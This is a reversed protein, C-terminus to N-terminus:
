HATAGAPKARPKVKGAQTASLTGKAKKKAKDADAKAVLKPSEKIGLAEIDIKIPTAAREELNVKAQDILAKGQDSQLYDNAAATIDKPEVANIRKGSAKIADKILNKALRRAETMVAAPEGTKAKKALFRIKGAMIAEVNKEAQAMALSKLEEEDKTSAKTIKSMGRNALEKLGLLLAEGYVEEPLDDTQFTVTDKGKTIPVNLVAM